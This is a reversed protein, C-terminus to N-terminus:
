GIIGNILLTIGNILFSSSNILRSRGIILRITGNQDAGHTGEWASRANGLNPFESRIAWILTKRIAQTMNAEM